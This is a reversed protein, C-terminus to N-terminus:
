VRAGNDRGLAQGLDEILEAASEIGVAMRILGPNIGILAKQRATLSSHSTNGPMSVLSEVGGLSTAVYPIRLRDM